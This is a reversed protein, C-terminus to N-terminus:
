ETDTLKPPALLDRSPHQKRWKARVILGVVLAPIAWLWAFLAYSLWGGHILLQPSYWYDEILCKRQCTSGYIRPYNDTISLWTGLGIWGFTGLMVLSFRLPGLKRYSDMFTPRADDGDDSRYGAM